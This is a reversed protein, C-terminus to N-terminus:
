HLSDPSFEPHGAGLSGSHIMFSKERVPIREGNHDEVYEGSVAIPTYGHKRLSSKLQKTRQNNEAPSLNARSASLLGVMHGSEIHGHMRSLSRKAAEHIPSRIYTLFSKM